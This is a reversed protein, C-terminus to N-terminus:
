AVSSFYTIVILFLLGDFPPNSRVGEFGGQRRGQFMAVQSDNVFGHFILIDCEGIVIHNLMGCFNEGCFNNVEWQDAFTKERLYESYLIVYMNVECVCSGRKELACVAPAYRLQKRTARFGGKATLNLM